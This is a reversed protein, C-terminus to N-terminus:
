LIFNFSYNSINFYEYNFLAYLFKYNLFVKEIIQKSRITKDEIKMIIELTKNLRRKTYPDNEDNEKKDYISLMNLILLNKKDDELDEFYRRNAVDIFRQHYWSNVQTEDFENVTLYEYLRYKIRNWLTIPFRLVPSKQIKFVYALLETDLSLVDEIECDSIGTEDNALTLYFLCRQVLLEGYDEEITKFIPTFSYRCNILFDLILTYSILRSTNFVTEVTIM